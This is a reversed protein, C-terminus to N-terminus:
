IETEVGQADRVMDVGGSVKPAHDIQTETTAAILGNDDLNACSDELDGIASNDTLSPLTDVTHESRDRRQRRKWPRGREVDDESDSPWSRECADIGYWEDEEEVSDRASAQSRSRKRSDVGASASRSGGGSYMQGLSEAPTWAEKVEYPRWPDSTTQLTAVYRPIAAYAIFPKLFMFVAQALKVFLYAKNGANDLAGEQVSSNHWDAAFESTAVGPVKLVHVVFSGRKPVLSFSHSDWM